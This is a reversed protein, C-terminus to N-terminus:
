LVILHDHMTFRERGNFARLHTLACNPLRREAFLSFNVHTGMDFVLTFDTFDAARMACLWHLYATMEHRDLTHRAVAGDM